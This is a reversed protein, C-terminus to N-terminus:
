QQAQAQERALADLFQPLSRAIRRNMMSEEVATRVAEAKTEAKLLCRLENVKRLDLLLAKKAPSGKEGQPM